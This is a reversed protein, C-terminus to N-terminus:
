IFIKLFFEYIEAYKKNDRQYDKDAFKFFTNLYIYIILFQVIDNNFNLIRNELQLFGEIM